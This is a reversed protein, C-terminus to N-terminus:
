FIVTLLRVSDEYMRRHRVIRCPPIGHESADMRGAGPTDGYQLCGISKTESAM